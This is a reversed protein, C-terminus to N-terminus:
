HSAAYEAIAQACHASDQALTLSAPATDLTDIYEGNGDYLSAGWTEDHGSAPRDAHEGSSIRFHLGKYTDREPTSPDLPVVIWTFGGEGDAYAPYCYAGLAASLADGETPTPKLDTPTLELRMNPTAVFLRGIVDHLVWAEWHGMWAALLSRARSQSIVRRDTEQWPGGRARWEPHLQALEYGPATAATKVSGRLLAAEGHPSLGGPKNGIREFWALELEASEHAVQAAAGVATAYAVCVQLEKLGEAAREAEGAAQVSPPYLPLLASREAAQRRGHEIKGRLTNLAKRAADRQTTATM